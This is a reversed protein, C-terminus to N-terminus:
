YKSYLTIPFSSSQESSELKIYFSHVGSFNADPIYKFVGSTSNLEFTSQGFANESEISGHFQHMTPTLEMLIMSLIIRLIKLINFEFLTSCCCSTAFRSRNGSEVRVMFHFFLAM